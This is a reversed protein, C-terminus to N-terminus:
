SHRQPTLVATFISASRGVDFYFRWSAADGGEAAGIHSGSIDRLETLASQQAKPPTRRFM